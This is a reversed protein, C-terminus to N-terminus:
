NDFTVLFAHYNITIPFRLLPPRVGNDPDFPYYRSVIAQLRGSAIQWTIDIYISTDLTGTLYIEYRADFGGPWMRARSAYIPTTGGIQHWCGNVLGASSYPSSQVAQFQGAVVNAGAPVAGRDYVLAPDYADITATPSIVFSGSAFGAVIFNQRGSDVVIQGDDVVRFDTGDWECLAM